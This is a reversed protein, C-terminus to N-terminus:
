SLLVLLSTPLIKRCDSAILVLQLFKNTGKEDLKWRHMSACM